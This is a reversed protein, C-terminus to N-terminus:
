SEISAIYGELGVVRGAKFLDFLPHGFLEVQPDFHLRLECEPCEEVNTVATGCAPCEGSFHGSGNLGFYAKILDVTALFNDEGVYFMFEEHYNHFQPHSIQIRQERFPVKQERLMASIGTGEEANFLLIPKLKIDGLPEPYDFLTNIKANQLGLLMKNQVDPDHEQTFANELALFAETSSIGIQNLIDACRFRIHWDESRLLPLLATVAQPGMHIIEHAAQDRIEANEDLLDEILANVKNESEM